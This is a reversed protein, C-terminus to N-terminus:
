RSLELARGPCSWPVVLVFFERLQLVGRTGQKAASALDLSQDLM